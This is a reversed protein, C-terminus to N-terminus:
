NSSNEAYQMLIRMANEQAVVDDGAIDTVIKVLKDVDEEIRITIPETPVYGLSQAAVLSRFEFDILLDIARIRDKLEADEYPKRADALSWLRRRLESLRVLTDQVILNRQPEEMFDPGWTDRNAWDLYLARDTVGYKESFIKVAESLRAGHAMLLYFERRRVELDERRKSM